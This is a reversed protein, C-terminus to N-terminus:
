YIFVAAPIPPPPPPPPPRPQSAQKSNGHEMANVNAKKDQEQAKTVLEGRM